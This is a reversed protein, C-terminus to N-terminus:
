QRPHTLAVAIIASKRANNLLEQKNTEESRGSTVQFVRQLMWPTVDGGKVHAGESVAIAVAAEAEVLPLEHEKPVPVGVVIGSPMGLQVHTRVLRIVDALNNSSLPSRVGSSASWFGPFDTQGWTIVPVGKTELYEL